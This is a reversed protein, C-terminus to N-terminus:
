RVTPCEQVGWTGPYAAIGLDELCSTIEDRLDPRLNWIHETTEMLVEQESANSLVRYVDVRRLAGVSDAAIAISGAIRSTREYDSMMGLGEKFRRQKLLREERGFLEVFADM